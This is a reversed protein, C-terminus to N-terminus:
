GELVATILAIKGFGVPAIVIRWSLLRSGSYTFTTSTPGRSPRCFSFPRILVSTLISRALMSAAAPRGTTSTVLKTLGFHTGCSASFLSTSAAMARRGPVRYVTRVGLRLPSSPASVAWTSSTAM